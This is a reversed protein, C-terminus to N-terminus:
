QAVGEGTVGDIGPAADVHDGVQETVGRHGGRLHIQM